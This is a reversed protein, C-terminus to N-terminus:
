NNRKSRKESSAERQLKIFENDLVLIWKSFEKWEERPVGKIQFYSLIETYTVSEAGSFGSQKTLLLDQFAEWYPVLDPYLQPM